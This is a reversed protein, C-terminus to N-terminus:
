QPIEQDIATSSIDLIIIKYFDSIFSYMQCTDNCSLPPSVQWIDIRCAYSCSIWYSVLTTIIRFFQSFYCFPPFQILFGAGAPYLSTRWPHPVSFMNWRNWQEWFQWFKRNFIVNMNLPQFKRILFFQHVSSKYSGYRIGFRNFEPHHKCFRSARPRILPESWLSITNVWNFKTGWIDYKAAHGYVLVTNVLQKLWM